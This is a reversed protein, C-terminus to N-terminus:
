GSLRRWETTNAIYQEREPNYLKKQDSNGRPVTGNIRELTRQKENRQMTEMFDEPIDAIKLAGTIIRDKLDQDFESDCTLSPSHNVELIWPKLNEDILVDFGLIEFCRSKEDETKFSARYNHQLFPHVSLITLTIIKDIENQLEDTNGGLARIDKFVSSMSRKHSNEDSGLVASNQKFHTNHKNVSYNTLHRYIERLNKSNPAQYEETCFRAMGEKFIYVRLPDVSAMLVYIRLDFKLGKILYPSIYEQAIASEHCEDVGRADQVLFIGRGQAGLDPKIIFTQRKNQCTLARKLDLTQTPLSFSKPHFNYLDPFQKQMKEINRALDIKKSIAFTGPFHNVFQWPKMKLCFDVGVNNDCWFLLNNHHDWVIKYGLNTVCREVSAYGTNEINVTVGPPKKPPPRNKEWSFM